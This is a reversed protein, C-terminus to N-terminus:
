CPARAFPTSLKPSSSTFHHSQIPLPVVSFTIHSSISLSCFFITRPKQCSCFPLTPASKLPFILPESKPTGPRSAMLYDQLSGSCTQIPKSIQPGSLVHCKEKHFFFSLFIVPNLISGPFASSSVPYVLLQSHFTLHFIFDSLFM